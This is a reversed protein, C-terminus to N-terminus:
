IMEGFSSIIEKVLKHTKISACCLPSRVYEKILGMESLAAKAPIPNTEAFMANHLPLLKSHIERAKAWNGSLAADNFQKM